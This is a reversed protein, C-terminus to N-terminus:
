DKSYKNVEDALWRCQRIHQLRLMKANLKVIRGIYLTKHQPFAVFDGVKVKRGILDKHEVEIVNM